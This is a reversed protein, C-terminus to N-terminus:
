INIHLTNLFETTSSIKWNLYLVEFFSIRDTGKGLIYFQVATSNAEYFMGGCFKLTGISHKLTEEKCHVRSIKEYFHYEVTM